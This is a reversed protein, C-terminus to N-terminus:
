ICGLRTLLKHANGYLVRDLAEPTFPLTTLRHIATAIPSVPYASAFIIRDPLITNAAQAFLEGGPLHAYLSTNIYVNEHRFAIAITEAVWPWGTHNIMITLGPFDCAIDDIARVDGYDLRPGPFPLPGCTIVVPVGLEACKAYVPYIRRDNAPASSGFPDLAVGKLGLNRVANEVGRVSEAGRMPDIGAFGIVRKPFQRAVAAVYDNDVDFSETGKSQRGTFVALEVGERDLLRIWEELTGPQPAPLGLRRIVNTGVSGSIVALYEPTNPRCRFDIVKRM